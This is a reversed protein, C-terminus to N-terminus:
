WELELKFPREIDFNPSYYPDRYDGWRSRFRQRDEPPQAGDIGRSGGQEHRLVAHPTYVILYGKERARLCLDVDNYAVALGEDFGGLERFVETRTLMCAATVASVDRTSVGFGYREAVMNGALGGGIGVLIGEHQPTGDPFLLRAGVAAVEPRQAHELMAELWEESVVETDNNLFLVMPTEVRDVARNMMRAFNFEGPHRIIPGDFRSLYELTAPEVSDNDVIVIDYDNYSTRARISEVCPRLLDLRDRTPILISIRPRDRLEYKVRYHGTFPGDLVEGDYGRRTLSEKLARKAAEYAYPKAESSAAASGPAKRWSYVVKPIHVIAEADETARLILDYDQSGDFGPRFAGIRDVLEKRFVSFHTVYNLSGLLDPSWDPKFFPEVRRGDLELKDEDTYIFDTDSRENLTKVVEFLAEPHLVDDHDLLAIFEGTALGLAANSAAVIGQNKKRFTVKIRRDGRRYRRLTRRTGRRASGDDAICLEWNDYIQARVSDLAEGLWAPETNYTPVLVSIMPQYPFASAETRMRTLREGTLQNRHLWLEYSDPGRGPQVVIGSPVRPPPLPPALKGGRLFRLLGRRYTGYPAIRDLLRRVRRGLRLAGSGELEAIRKEQGSVVWDRQLIAVDKEKIQEAKGRLIAIKDEIVVQKEAVEADREAVTRQLDELERQRAWFSALSEAAGHSESAAGADVGEPAPTARVLFQFTAADPLSEVDELLMSPFEGLDLDPAAEAITVRTERWEDIRYGARVFLEEVGERAFFRLHTRDLLGEETYRFRGALLSLRVSAHAVNPISVAVSGGPALLRKTRRLVTEPDVLHELVDGYLVIDFQEDAFEQDLDIKEIDGVVAREAYQTAMRAAQPDVEVVTVRCGREQLVKTMYGTSSGVELVNRGTGSWLILQTHSNNRNDLDIKTEYRLADGEGTFAAL